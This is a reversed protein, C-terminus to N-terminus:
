TPTATSATDDDDYLSVADIVPDGRLMARIVRHRGNHVLYHGDNLRSM